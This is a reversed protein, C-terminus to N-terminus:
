SGVVEFGVARAALGLATDHTALHLNAERRERFLVATALHIADLTGLATPFPQAARDLVDNGLPVLRFRDLLRYTAERRSALANPDLKGMVQLRDLTRLCEVRGLQSAVAAALGSGGIAGPQGLILRLVVSSDLYAIM